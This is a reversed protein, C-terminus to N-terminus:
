PTLNANDQYVRIVVQNSNFVNYYNELNTTIRGVLDFPVDELTTDNVDLTEWAVTQYNYIQLYIPDTETSLTSKAHVRISM